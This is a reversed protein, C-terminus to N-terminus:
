NSASAADRQHRLQHRLENREQASLQREPLQLDPQRAKQLQLVSRLENLPIPKTTSMQAAAPLLSGGEASPMAQGQANGAPGSAAQAAVLGPAFAVLTLFSLGTLNMNALYRM